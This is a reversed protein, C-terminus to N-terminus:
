QKKLHHILYNSLIANRAEDEKFSSPVLVVDLHSIGKQDTTSRKFYNLRSGLQGLEWHVLEDLNDLNMGGSATSIGRIEKSPIKVTFNNSTNSSYFEYDFNLSDPSTQYLILLGLEPNNPDGRIWHIYEPDIDEVKSPTSSILKNDLAM